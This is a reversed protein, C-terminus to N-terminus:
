SRGIHVRGVIRFWYGRLSNRRSIKGTKKPRDFMAVGVAINM